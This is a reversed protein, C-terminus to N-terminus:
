SIIGPFIIRFRDTLRQVEDGSDKLTKLINIRFIEILDDTIILIKLKNDHAKTILKLLQNYSDVSKLSVYILAINYEEIGEVYLDNAFPGKGEKDYKMAPGVIKLKIDSGSYYALYNLSIKKLENKIHTNRQEMLPEFGIINAREILNLEPKELFINQNIIIGSGQYKNFEVLKEMKDNGICNTTWPKRYSEMDFYKNTFNNAFNSNFHIYYPIYTSIHELRVNSTILISKNNKYIYNIADKLFMSAAGYQMNLDDLVILDMDKLLEDTTLITSVHASLEKSKKLLEDGLSLVSTADGLVSTADGLSLASTADGLVSTADGLSLASTARKKTSEIQYKESFYASDVYLVRKNHESAYKAISVGLHTKGIGPTGTLIFGSPYDNQEKSSVHKAFKYSIALINEMEENEANYNSFNKNETEASFPIVQKIPVHITNDIASDLQDLKINEWSIPESTMLVHLKDENLTMIAILGIIESDDEVQKDSLALGLLAKAKNGHVDEEITTEKSYKLIREKTVSSQDKNYSQIFLIRLQEYTLPGNKFQDPGFGIFKKPENEDVCILNWGIAAGTPHKFEYGKVGKIYVLDNLKVDDMSNTANLDFIFFLPNNIVGNPTYETKETLEYPSFLNNTIILQSISKGFQKNFLEDGYKNLIYMYIVAQIVQACEAITPGNFWSRIAVSPLTGSRSVFMNRFYTLDWFTSNSTANFKTYDISEAFQKSYDISYYLGIGYNFPTLQRKDYPTNVVDLISKFTNETIVFYPKNKNIIQYFYYYLEQRYKDTLMTGQPSLEGSLMTEQPSTYNIKFTQKM